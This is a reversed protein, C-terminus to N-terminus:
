QVGSGDKKFLAFHARRNKSYASESDASDLPIEEGYSITSLQEPRVGYSALLRGVSRAREQGLALNYENTGRRDCHGEVEARLSSDQKLAEALRKIDPQFEEEVHTSDYGFLVDPFAGGAEGRPISGDGFRQQNALGLDEVGIGDESGDGKGSGKSCGPATAALALIALTTSLRVLGKMEVGAIIKIVQQKM